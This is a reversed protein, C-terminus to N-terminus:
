SNLWTVQFQVVSAHLSSWYDFIFTNLVKETLGYIYVNEIPHKAGHRCLCLVPLSRNISLRYSSAYSKIAEELLLLWFRKLALLNSSHHCMSWHLCVTKKLQASTKCIHNGCIIALWFIKKNYECHIMFGLIETLIPCM